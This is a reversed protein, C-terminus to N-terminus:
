DRLILFVGAGLLAIGGLRAATIPHRELGFWGFRDILVSM